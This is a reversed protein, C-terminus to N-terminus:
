GAAGALAPDPCVPARAAAGDPPPDRPAGRREPAEVARRRPGWHLGLSTGAGIAVLQVPIMLWFRPSAYYGAALAAAQGVVALTLAKWASGSAPEARALRALLVATLPPVLLAAAGFAYATTRFNDASPRLTGNAFLQLAGYAAGLVLADGALAGLSAAVLERGHFPGPDLPPALGTSVGAGPLALLLHLALAFAAMSCVISRREARAVGRLAVAVRPLRGASM